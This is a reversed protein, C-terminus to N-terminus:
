KDAVVGFAQPFLKTRAFGAERLRAIVGHTISMQARSAPNGIYHFLRGGKRLVRYLKRYFEGGYLQGALSFVPPDHIIRDFMAESFSDVLEFSDGLYQTIKPNDFLERSWPNQRAVEQAAPDLEVTHVQEATKAAEIATYGLGTATDLVVGRLPSIAKMKALTDQYPDCGKIRHMTFGAVLMTPAGATPMLSCARNTTASFVVIKELRGKKITFCNNESSSIEKIAEWDLHEGDPFQLGDPGLTAEIRSLGLDPSIM